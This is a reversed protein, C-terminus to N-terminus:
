RLWEIPTMGNMLTQISVDGQGEPSIGLHLEYGYFCWIDFTTYIRRVPHSVTLIFRYDNQVSFFCEFFCRIGRTSYPCSPSFKFVASSTM